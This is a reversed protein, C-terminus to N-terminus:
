ENPTIYRCDHAILFQITLAVLEKVGRRPIRYGIGCDEGPCFMGSNYLRIPNTNLAYGGSGLLSAEAVTVDSFRTRAECKGDRHRPCYSYFSAMLVRRSNTSGRDVVHWHFTVNAVCILEGIEEQDSSILSDILSQITKRAEEMSDARQKLHGYRVDLLYTFWFCMRQFGFEKILYEVAVEGLDNPGSSYFFDGNRDILAHSGGEYGLTVLRPGGQTPWPKDMYRLYPTVAAVIQLLLQRERDTQTSITAVM